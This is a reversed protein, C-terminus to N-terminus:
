DSDFYEDSYRNGSVRTVNIDVGDGHELDNNNESKGITDNEYQKWSDSSGESTSFQPQSNVLVTDPDEKQDIVARQNSAPSDTDSGGTKDDNQSATEPSTAANEPSHTRPSSERSNRGSSISERLKTVMSVASNASVQSTSAPHHNHQNISKRSALAMTSRSSRFTNLGKGARSRKSVDLDNEVQLYDPDMPGGLEKLMQLAERHEAKLDSLSIGTHEKKLRGPPARVVAVSSSAKRSAPGQGTLTTKTGSRGNNMDTTARVAPSHKKSSSKVTNKGIKTRSPGNSARITSSSSRRDSESSTRPKSTKSLPRPPDTQSNSTAESGPLERVSNHKERNSKMIQKLQEFKRALSFDLPPVVSNDEPIMNNDPEKVERSYKAVPSNPLNNDSDSGLEYELFDLATRDVSSPVADLRRPAYLTSDSQTASLSRKDDDGDLLKSLSSTTLISAPASGSNGGPLKRKSKGSDLSPLRHNERSPPYESGTRARRPGSQPKASSSHSEQHFKTDHETFAEISSAPHFLGDAAANLSFEDFMSRYDAYSPVPFVNHRITDLTSLEEDSALQPEMKMETENSNSNELSNCRRASDPNKKKKRLKHEIAPHLQNSLTSKVSTLRKKRTVEAKAMM